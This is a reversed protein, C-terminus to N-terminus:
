KNRKKINDLEFTLNIYLDYLEKHNKVNDENKFYEDLKISYDKYCNFTSQILSIKNIFDKYKM